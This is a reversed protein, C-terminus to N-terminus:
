GTLTTAPNCRSPFNAPITADGSPMRQDNSKRGANKAPIPEAKRCLVRMRTMGGEAPDHAKKGLIISRKRRSQFQIECSIIGRPM